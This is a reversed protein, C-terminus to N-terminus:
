MIKKGTGVSGTYSIKDVMPSEVLEAGLEPAEGTVVNFVGPPLDCGELIEALLLDILPMYPSPKFVMTNGTALATPMDDRTANPVEAVTEETAPNLITHTKGSRAETWRGDVYMRMKAASGVRTKAAVPM